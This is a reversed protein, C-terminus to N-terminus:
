ADNRLILIHELKMLEFIPDLTTPIRLNFEHLEYIPSVTVHQMATITYEVM